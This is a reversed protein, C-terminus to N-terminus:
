PYYASSHLNPMIRYWSQACRVCLVPVARARRAFRGWQLRGLLRLMDNGRLLGSGLMRIYMRFAPALAGPTNSMRRRHTDIHKGVFTMAKSPRPDSKPSIIFGASRLKRIVRAAAAKLARRSKAYLLVNDLYM